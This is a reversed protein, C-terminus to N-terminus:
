GHKEREYYETALKRVEESDPPFQGTKRSVEVFARLACGHFPDSLFQELDSMIGQHGAVVRNLVRQRVAM